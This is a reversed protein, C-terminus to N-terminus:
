PNTCARCFNGIACLNQRTMTALAVKVGLPAQIDGRGARHM